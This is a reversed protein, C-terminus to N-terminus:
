AWDALRRYAGNLHLIQRVPLYDDSPLAAPALVLAVKLSEHRHFVM